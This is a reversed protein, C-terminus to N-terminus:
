PEWPLPEDLGFGSNSYEAGAALWPMSSYYLETTSNNNTDLLLDPLDYFMDDEDTLSSNSSEQLDHAQAQAEHRFDMSAAKAAAQIDKPSNTAPRPLHEALEPFNLYASSGKIAQAAVDHAIAAMEPTPFSGLWIRSKKKPERIESVWKGWHRMRVGRYLPHKGNNDSKPKTKNNEISSSISTTLEIENDMSVSVQEM